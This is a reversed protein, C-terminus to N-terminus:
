MLMKTESKELDAETFTMVFFCNLSVLFEAETVGFNDRINRFVNPCYHKIKFKTPLDSNFYANEIKTKTFAKFDKPMLLVPPRVCALENMAFNISWMFISIMPDKARFNRWKPMLHRRERFSRLSRRLSKRRAM